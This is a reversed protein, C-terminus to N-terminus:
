IHRQQEPHQTHNTETQNITNEIGNSNRKGFSFSHEDFTVDRTRIERQIAPDDGYYYDVRNPDYRIFICPRARPLLKNDKEKHFVKYYADCGFVRLHSVSPKQGTWAEYRTMHKNGFSSPVCRNTIYVATNLADQWYSRPLRAHHLMSRTRDLLNRNTREAIGNHQPTDPATTTFITGKKDFYEKLKVYEGGGDCHFEKLRKGTQTTAKTNWDIIHQVAQSKYKLLKVWIYRSYVDVIVSIYIGRVKCLDAVAMDRISTPPQGSSKKRFLKRTLKGLACGVCLGKRECVHIIDGDMTAHKIRSLANDSVHAFRAHWDVPSTTASFAKDQYQQQKIIYLNVVIRSSNSGSGINVIAEEEDITVTARHEKTLKPISILNESCNPAHTAPIVLPQGSSTPLKVNGGHKLHMIQKNAVMMPIPSPLPHISSFLKADKILHLTAASDLIARFMPSNPNHKHNVKDHTYNAQQFMNKLSELQVTLNAIQENM